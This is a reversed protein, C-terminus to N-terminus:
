FVVDQFLYFVILNLFFTKTQITTSTNAHIHHLKVWRYTAGEKFCLYLKRTVAKSILDSKATDAIYSHETTMEAM